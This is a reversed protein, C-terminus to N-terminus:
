ARQKDDSLGLNQKAIDLMVQARADGYASLTLFAIYYVFSTQLLPPIPVTSDPTLAALDDPQPMVLKTLQYDDGQHHPWVEVMKQATEIIAAQPRDDTATAGYPDYLQLYRDSDESILSDGKVARHWATCRVRLLRILNYGLQIQGNAPVTGVQDQIISITGQEGAGSLQEPPAYLCLWRLADGLKAKIINNMLNIDDGDAGNILAENAPEEDYCWRVAYCIDRVTMM